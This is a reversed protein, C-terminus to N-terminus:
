YSNGMLEFESVDQNELKWRIQEFYNITEKSYMREGCRLCVDAKVKIAATNNGGRLLQEVEKEIVEGGCLPCKNFPIM